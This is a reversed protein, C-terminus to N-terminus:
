RSNDPAKIIGTSTRVKMDNESLLACAMRHLAYECISEITYAQM